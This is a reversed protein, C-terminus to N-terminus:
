RNMERMIHFEPNVIPLNSNKDLVVQGNNDRLYKNVSGRRLLCNRLCKIHQNCCPLFYYAQGNKAHQKERENDPPFINSWM